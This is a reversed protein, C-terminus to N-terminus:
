IIGARTGKCLVKAIINRKLCAPSAEVNLTMKRDKLVSPISDAIVALRNRLGFEEFSQLVIIYVHHSVM